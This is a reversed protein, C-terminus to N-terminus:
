QIEINNEHQHLAIGSPRSRQLSLPLARRPSVHAVTGEAGELIIFDGVSFPSEPNCLVLGALFQSLTSQAGLAFTVSALGALGLSEAKLGVVQLGAAIIFLIISISMIKDVAPMM